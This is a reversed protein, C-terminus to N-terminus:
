PVDLAYRMKAFGEGRIPISSERLPSAARATREFERDGANIRCALQPPFAFRVTENGNNHVYVSFVATRGALAPRSPPVIIMDLTGASALAAHLMVWLFPFRKM